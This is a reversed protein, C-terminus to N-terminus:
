FVMLMMFKVKGMTVVTKLIDKMLAWRLLHGALGMINGMRSAGKM